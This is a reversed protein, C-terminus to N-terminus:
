KGFTFFGLKKRVLLASLFNQSIIGASTAIAAGLAGYNYILIPSSALVIFACFVLSNRQSKASNTMMLLYGVSGCCISFLQASCLLILLPKAGVYETGFFGLIEDSFLLIGFYVPLTAIVLARTSVQSIKKLSQYDNKASYRSFRPALVFNAGILTFSIAMSVRQAVSLLAIQELDLLFAAILHSSWVIFLQMLIIIWFTYSKKALSLLSLSSPQSFELTGCKVITFIACSMTILCAAMYIQFPPVSDGIALILLAAILPTLGSLLFSGILGRSSGILYSSCLSSISVMFMCLLMQYIATTDLPMPLSISGLTHTIALTLLVVIAYACLFLKASSALLNTPNDISQSTTHNAVNKILTNDLGLRSLASFVTVLTLTLFFEGSIKPNYHRTVIASLALIAFASSFKVLISAAGVLILKIM